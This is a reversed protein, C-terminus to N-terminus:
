FGERALEMRIQIFEDYYTDDADKEYDQYSKTIGKAEMYDEMYDYGGARIAVVDNCEREFAFIDETTLEYDMREAKKYLCAIMTNKM